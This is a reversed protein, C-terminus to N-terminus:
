TGSPSVTIVQVFGEVLSPPEIAAFVRRLGQENAVEDAPRTRNRALCTELPALFWVAVAPVGFQRAASLIPSRESRKVLIADFVIAEPEFELHAATWTSKGSGQAGVLVYVRANSTATALASRLAVFCQHWAHANREPTVVRGEPTSLFLDPNIHVAIPQWATPARPGTV